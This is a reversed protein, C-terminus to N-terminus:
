FVSKPRWNGKEACFDMCDHINKTLSNLAIHM